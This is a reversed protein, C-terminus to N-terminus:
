ISATVTSHSTAVGKYEMNCNRSSCQSSFEAEYFKLQHMFYMSFHSDFRVNTAARYPHENRHVGNCLENILMSFFIGSLLIKVLAYNEHLVHNSSRQVM